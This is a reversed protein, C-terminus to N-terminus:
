GGGKNEFIARWGDHVIMDEFLRATAVVFLHFTLMGLSLALIDIAIVPMTVWSLVVVAALCALGVCVTTVIGRFIRALLAFGVYLVFSLVFGPVGSWRTSGLIDSASAMANALIWAGPMGGLPTRYFDRSYGHTSGIIVVRDRFPTSAMDRGATIQRASVVMLRRGLDSVRTVGASTAGATQPFGFTYTTSAAPPIGVLTRDRAGQRDEACASQAGTRLAQLTAALRAQGGAALEAAVLPGSPLVEAGSARCSIEFLRLRRIAWDDDVEFISTIWVVAPSGAADADYPTAEFRRYIRGAAGADPDDPDAKTVRRVMLLPAAGAPRSSLVAALQADRDPTELSSLDIDVVIARPGRRAVEEILVALEPRPTTAGRNWAKMSADDIDVVTVAQPPTYGSLITSLRTLQDPDLLADVAGTISRAFGFWTFALLTVVFAIWLTRTGMDSGINIGKRTLRAATRSLGSFM